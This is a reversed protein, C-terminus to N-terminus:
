EEHNGTISQRLIGITLCPICNVDKWYLSCDLNISYKEGCVITRKSISENEIIKHIAVSGIKKM